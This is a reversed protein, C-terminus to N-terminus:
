AIVGSLSRETLVSYDELHIHETTRNRKLSKCLSILLELGENTAYICIVDDEVRLEIDGKSFDATLSANTM